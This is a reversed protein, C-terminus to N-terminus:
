PVKPEDGKGGVLQGLQQVPVMNAPAMYDDGNDIPNMNELRRIDNISLWGWQRAAAYYEKRAQHDGRLLGLVNHEAFFGQEQQWPTLLDRWVAQEIAELWFGLADVVYELSQHEVNTFTARELDNIKHAPVRFLGAIDSRSLKAQEILQADVSTMSIPEFKLDLESLVATKHANEGGYGESWERKLRAKADDSLKLKSYLVGGPRAGNGFLLASHRELALALGIRERAYSIPTVGTVGDLSLAVPHFMNEQPVEETRGSQFTVQYKLSLDDEQRVTVTGPQLPQLEYVRRDRGRGVWNIFAYFNGRTLMDWHMRQRFQISTQWGNPRRALIPYLPDKKVPDKGEDDRERFLKLPLKSTDQSLAQCCQFVTIQRMASEPTVNIGAKTPGGWDGVLLRELEALDTRDAAKTLLGM